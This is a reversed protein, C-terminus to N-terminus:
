RFKLEKSEREIRMTFLKVKDREVEGNSGPLGRRIQILIFALAWLECVSQGSTLSM